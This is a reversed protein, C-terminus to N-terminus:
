DAQVTYRTGILSVVGGRSKIEPELGITVSHSGSLIQVMCERREGGVPVHYTSCRRDASQGAAQSLASQARRALEDVQTSTTWGCVTIGEGNCDRNIKLPTLSAPAHVRQAISTMRTEARQGREHQVHIGTPVAVAAFLAGALTLRYFPHVPRSAEMVVCRFRLGQAQDGKRTLSPMRSVQGSGIENGVECFSPFTQPM